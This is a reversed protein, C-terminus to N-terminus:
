YISYIFLLLTIHCLYLPIMFANSLIAQFIVNILITNDILVMSKEIKTNKCFGSDSLLDRVKSLCVSVTHCHKLIVSPHVGLAVAANMLRAGDM